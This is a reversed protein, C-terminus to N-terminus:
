RCGSWRIAILVPCVGSVGAGFIAFGMFWPFFWLKTYFLVYTVLLLISVVLRWAREAEFDFRRKRQVPALQSDSSIDLLFDGRVRQILLPIRWNTVGEFFLLAILSYMLYDLDFYLSVLLLAGIILRYTRDNMCGGTYAKMGVWTSTLTLAALM